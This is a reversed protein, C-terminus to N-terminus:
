LFLVSKSDLISTAFNWEWLIHKHRKAKHLGMQDLDLPRAPLRVGILELEIRTNGNWINERLRLSVNARLHLWADESFLIDGDDYSLQQLTQLIQVSLAFKM